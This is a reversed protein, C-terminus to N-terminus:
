LHQGGEVLDVPKAAAWVKILLRQRELEREAAEDPKSLILASLTAVSIGRLAAEPELRADNGAAWQRKQAHAQDRQLNAVAMDNFRRNVADTRAARLAVMPDIQIKV